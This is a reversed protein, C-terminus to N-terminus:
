CVIVAPEHDLFRVSAAVIVDYEGSGFGQLTPDKEIDLVKYIVRSSYKSFREEAAPFFGPSIDTYVYQSCRLSCKEGRGNSALKDLIPATAGGTGAGIEIIKLTPNKHALLDVYNATRATTITFVPGAYFRQVLDSDFLLSLADVEERLIQKINKACTLYLEEETTDVASVILGEFYATDNLSPRGDQIHPLLIGAKYQDCVHRMWAIYKVIYPKTKLPDNTLISELASNMVYLCYLELSEVAEPSLVDTVTKDTDCYSCIQDPLLLHLDPKWEIEFCLRKLLFDEGLSSELDSIATARYGEILIKCEKSSSDFAYISAEADRYGRFTCYTCLDLTQNKTHMLLGNSIWLKGIKTPVMTRGLEWTGNTSAVVTLHIMADLAIPHIVHDQILHSGSVKTMWERPDITATASYDSSFRVQKLMQFSPGFWFGFAALNAYLDQPHLDRKCRSISAELRERINQSPVLATLGEKGSDNVYETVINGRCIEVWENESYLYLHFTHLDNFQSTNAKTPRLHLQTEVGEPSLSILLPKFISVGELRFAHVQLNRNALQRAGEIAM